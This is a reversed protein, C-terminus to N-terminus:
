RESACSVDEKYIEVSLELTVGLFILLLDKIEEVVWHESKM